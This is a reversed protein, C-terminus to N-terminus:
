VIGTSFGISIHHLHLSQENMRLSYNIEEDHGEGGLERM